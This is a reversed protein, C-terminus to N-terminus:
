EFSVVQRFLSADTLRGGHAVVGVPRKLNVGPVPPLRMLFEVLVLELPASLDETTLDLVLAGNPPRGFHQLLWDAGGGQVVVGNVARLSVLSEPAPSINMQEPGLVSSVVLRLSRVGGDIIDSVITTEARPANVAPAASVRYSRSNGALFSSLNATTAEDDVFESLWAGPEAEMTAWAAEGSERDLAYLLDNPIPRGPGPQGDIMGVVTFAIAFGFAGSVLWWRNAQTALEFLPILLVLMTAVAVAIVPAASINLGIYIAWVPPTLILVVPIGLVGFIALDAGNFPKNEARALLQRTAGIAFVVPWVFLM